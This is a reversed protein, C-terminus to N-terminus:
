PRVMDNCEKRAVKYLERLKDIEDQAAGGISSDSEREQMMLKLKKELKKLSRSDRNRLKQEDELGEAATRLQLELKKRDGNLKGVKQRESELEEEVTHLERQLAKRKREEEELVTADVGKGKEQLARMNVELRLKADEILQLEDELEIIMKKQEEVTAALASSAKEREAANRTGSDIGEMVEDLEGKLRKTSKEAADRAETMDELENKLNLVSTELERVRAQSVDLSATLAEGRGREEALKKDFAREKTVAAAFGQKERDLQAGPSLPV